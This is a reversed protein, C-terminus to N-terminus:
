KPLLGFLDIGLKRVLFGIVLAILFLIRMIVQGVSIIFYALPNIKRSRVGRIGSATVGCGILVGVIYLAISDEAV